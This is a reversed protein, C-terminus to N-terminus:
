PEGADGRSGNDGGVEQDLAQEDSNDNKGWLPMM